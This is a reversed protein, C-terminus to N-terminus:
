RYTKTKLGLKRMKGQLTGPNLGLLEAAGNEGYIKGKCIELAQTICNKSTEEFTNISQTKEIKNIIHHLNQDPISGIERPLEFDFEKKYNLILNKELVNMLERVNGPWDYAMIKIMVDPSIEMPTINLKLSIEKIFYNVLYYLDEKRERLPPIHLPFVNLRYYLDERFTGNRVNSELHQNTATIIRVDVSITNESGLREMEGEQIIRLIKVQASLPLDGIEDLFLTGKDAREFYGKHQKEAGTFAGKEHGFLESEVLTEPIAGCNIGLFPYRSRNSSKYIRRALVEKGTGSEGTILVTTPYKAVLASKKLVEEMSKSKVKIPGSFFSKDLESRLSKNSQFEQRSYNSLKEITSCHSYSLSLIQSIEKNPFLSTKLEEYIINVNVNLYLYGSFQQNKFLPLFYINKSNIKRSLKKLHPLLWEDSNEPEWSNFSRVPYDLKIKRTQITKKKKIWQVSHIHTNESKEMQWGFEFYHLSFFQEFSNLCCKQLSLHSHVGM